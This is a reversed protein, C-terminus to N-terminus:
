IQTRAICKRSQLHVQNTQGCTESVQSHRHKQIEMQKKNHMSRCPGGCARECKCVQKSAPTTQSSLSAKPHPAQRTSVGCPQSQVVAQSQTQDAEDASTNPFKHGRESQPSSKGGEGCARRVTFGVQKGKEVSGGEGDHHVSLM